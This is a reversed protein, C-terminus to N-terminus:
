GGGAASEHEWSELGHVANQKDDVKGNEAPGVILSETERLWKALPAPLRDHQQRSPGTARRSPESVSANFDDRQWQVTNARDGIWARVQPQRDPKTGLDL